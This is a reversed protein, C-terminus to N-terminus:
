HSMFTHHQSLPVRKSWEWWSGDYNSVQPHNLIRLIMYVWASRVGGTCYTVIPRELDVGKSGLLTQLDERSLLRNYSDFFSAWHLHIAKPLHGGYSSGYPTRGNFEEIRRVDIWQPPTPNSISTGQSQSLISHYIDDFRARLTPDEQLTWHSPKPKPESGLSRPGQARRWASWGGELIYAQPHGLYELMWWIRAEEGWGKNWSGYVVIPRNPSIGLARVQTQLDKHNMLLGSKKHHTFQFWPAHQAKPIHGAFYLVTLSRADIFDAMNSQHWKQAKQPTILFASSDANFSMTDQPPSFHDTSYTCYGILCLILILYTWHM